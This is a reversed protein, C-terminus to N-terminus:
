SRRSKKEAELKIEKVFSTDIDKLPGLIQAPEQSQKKDTSPRGKTQEAGTTEAL